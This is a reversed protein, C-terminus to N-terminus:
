FNGSWYFQDTIRVSEKILDPRSHIYYLRHQHVPGGEYVISESDMRHILEGLTNELPKNLILGMTGMENDEVIVVVTRNFIDDSIVPRSVLIKGKYKYNNQMNLFFEM